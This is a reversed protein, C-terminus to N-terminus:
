FYPQTVRGHRGFHYAFNSMATVRDVGNFGAWFLLCVDYSMGAIQVLEGDIVVTFGVRGTWHCILDPDVKANSKNHLQGSLVLAIASFGHENHEQQLKNLFKVGSSFPPNLYVRKPKCLSGAITAFKGWNRELAGESFWHKAQTPNNSNSAPDLDVGGLARHVLTVIPQNPTNPTCYHDSNFGDLKKWQQFEESSSSISRIANPTPEIHDGDIPLRPPTHSLASEM